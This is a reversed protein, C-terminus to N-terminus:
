IKTNLHINVLSGDIFAQVGALQAHLRHSGFGPALMENKGAVDEPV